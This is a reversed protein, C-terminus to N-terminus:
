WNIPIILRSLNLPPPKWRSHTCCLPLLLQCSSIWLPCIWTSCPLFCFYLPVSHCVPLWQQQLLLLPSPEISWRMACLSWKWHPCALVLSSSSVLLLQFLRQFFDTFPKTPSCFSADREFLQPEHWKKKKKEQQDTDCLSRLVPHDFMVSRYNIPGSFEPIPGSLQNNSVNRKMKKNWRDHPIQFCGFLFSCSCVPFHQQLDGFSFSLSWVISQQQHVQSCNQTLPHLFSFLVISSLHSSNCSASATTTSSLPFRALSNTLAWTETQKKNKKLFLILFMFPLLFSIFSWVHLHPQQSKLVLNPYDWCPPQKCSEQQKKLAETLWESLSVAHNFFEFLSQLSTLNGLNFPITGSLQNDYLFRNWHQKKEILFHSLWPDNIVSIQNTLADVFLSSLKAFVGLTSPITGSLQNTHLDRKKKKSSNKMNTQLSAFHWPCYLNILTPLNGLASPITGSLQNYDLRRNKWLVIPTLPFLPFFFWVLLQTAQSQWLRWPYAWDSPQQLSAKKSIFQMLLWFVCCSGCHLYLCNRCSCSIAWLLRFRVPSNTTTWSVTKHMLSWFFTKTCFHLSNMCILSNLFTELLPHFPARWNTRM